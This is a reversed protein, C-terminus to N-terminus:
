IKENLRSSLRPMGESVDSIVAEAQSIRSQIVHSYFYFFALTPAAVILGGATTVLAVQIGVAVVKANVTTAAAISAFASIMGIVTGLFGAIPALNGIGYLLSMGKEMKAIYIGFFGKLDDELDERFEPTSDAARKKLMEEILQGKWISNKTFYIAREIVITMAALGLIILFIMLPGGQKVTTFLSEGDQKNEDINVSSTDGTKEEGSIDNLKTDKQNSKINEEINTDAAKKQAHLSHFVGGNFFVFGSIILIFFSKKFNRFYM